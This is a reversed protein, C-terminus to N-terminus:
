QENVAGQGRHHPRTLAAGAAEGLSSVQGDLRGIAGGGEDLAAAIIDTDNSLNELNGALGGLINKLRDAETAGSRSQERNTGVLGRLERSTKQALQALMRVEDAVVGFGAGKEGARAAEVAANLALLNTRFSVDEIAAALKDIEASTGAAGGIAIDAREAALAAEGLATRADRSATRASKATQRGREVADRAVGVGTRAGQATDAMARLSARYADIASLIAVCKRELAARAEAAEDREEGLANILDALDRVQPAIGSNARRMQPTLPEGAQLRKLAEVGLDLSELSEGLQRLAPSAALAPADFRFGTHGGALAAAFADLDDDAIFAGAPTLEVVIRGGGAPRHHASYRNTGVSILEEEAMGGAAWGEGLLVAVSAGEVARPEVAAMGRTVSLIEGDASVLVAPQDLGAFAGKVLSARELRGALNGIIAEFSIGDRLDRGGAAGVAHGLEALKREVAQEAGRAVALNLAFAFFGLGAALAPGFWGHFLWVAAGGAALAALWVLNGILVVTTRRM